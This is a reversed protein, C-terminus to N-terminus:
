QYGPLGLFADVGFSKYASQFDFGGGLSLYQGKGLYTDVYNADKEKDFFSYNFRGTVRMPESYGPVGGKSNVTKGTFLGLRYELAEDLVFGRLNAGFDRGSFTGFVKDQLSSYTSADLEAIKPSSQLQIRSVGARQLGAHVSLEPMFSHAVYAELIGIVTKQSTQSSDGYNPSYKQGNVNINGIKGTVETAFTFSTNDSLKGSGLLRLRRFQFEHGWHRSATDQRAASIAEQFAQAQVQVFAGVKFSPKVEEKPKPSEQPPVEQPLKADQANVRSVFFLFMFLLIIKKM